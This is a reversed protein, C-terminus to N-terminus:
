KVTPDLFTFAIVIYILLLFLQVLWTTNKKNTYLSGVIKPSVTPYKSSIELM